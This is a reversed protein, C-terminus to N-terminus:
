SGWLIQWSGDGAEAPCIGEYFVHSVDVGGFWATEGRTQRETEEVADLLEAVTFSRGNPAAHTVPIEAEGRLVISPGGFAVLLAVADTLPPDDDADPDFPGGRTLRVSRVAASPTARENDLNGIREPPETLEVELRCVLDALLDFHETPM